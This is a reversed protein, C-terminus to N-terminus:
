KASSIVNNNRTLIAAPIALPIIIGAIIAYAYSAFESLFLAAVTIDKWANPHSAPIPAAPKAFSKCNIKKILAAANIM